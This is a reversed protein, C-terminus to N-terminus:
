KVQGATFIFDIHFQKMMILSFCWLILTRNRICLWSLCNCSLPVSSKFINQFPYCIPSRGPLKLQWKQKWESYPGFHDYKSGLPCESVLANFWASRSLLSIRAFFIYDFFILQKFVSFFICPTVAPLRSGHDKGIKRIIKSMRGLDRIDGSYRSCNNISNSREVSQPHCPQHHFVEVLIRCTCVTEERTNWFM